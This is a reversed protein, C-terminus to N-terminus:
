SDCDAHCDCDCAVVDLELMPPPEGLPCSCAPCRGLSAISDSRGFPLESVPPHMVQGSEEQSIDNLKGAIERFMFGIRINVALSVVESLLAAAIFCLLWAPLTITM